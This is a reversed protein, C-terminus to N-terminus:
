KRLRQWRSPKPTPPPRTPDIESKAYDPVPAPAADPIPAAGARQARYAPLMSRVRNFSANHAFAVRQVDGALLVSRGCLEDLAARENRSIAAFPDVNTM